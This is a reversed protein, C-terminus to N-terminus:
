KVDIQIENRRTFWLSFPSNYRAWVDSSLPTLNEKKIWDQLKLLHKNYNSTSWTGSYNLVAVKRAPKEQISIRADIPKPLTKLTWKSPMMFGVRYIEGNNVQTVPTTMKIKVGKSEQTVPATMDIEQQNINKGSIYEFLIPFAKRSAEEFSSDVTVYAELHKEYYRIEFPNDGKVLEYKPEDYSQSCATFLAFFFLTSQSPKKM